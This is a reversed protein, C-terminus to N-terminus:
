SRLHPSRGYPADAFARYCAAYIVISLISWRDDGFLLLGWGGVAVAVAPATVAPSPRFLDGTLAVALGTMTLLPLAAAAIAAPGDFTPRYAISATAAFSCVGLGLWLLETADPARIALRACRRPALPPPRM